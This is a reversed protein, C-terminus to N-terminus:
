VPERAVDAASQANMHESLQAAKALPLLAHERMLFEARAGQGSRIAEVLRVHDRQAEVMTGLAEEAPLVYLLPASRFPIAASRELLRSLSDNGAIEAITAHFRINIDSFRRFAAPDSQKAAILADVAVVCEGLAAEQAQSPGREAALRAALGELTARVEITERMYDVTFRRVRFGRNPAGEVLDEQELTALALRVPTRSVQLLAALGTETVREGQPLSGSVIMDRLRATVAEINNSAKLTLNQM